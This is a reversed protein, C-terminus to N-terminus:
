ARLTVGLSKCVEEPVMKAKPDYTFATAVFLLVICFLFLTFAFRTKNVKM